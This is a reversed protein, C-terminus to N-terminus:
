RRRGKGIERSLRMGEIREAETKAAHHEHCLSQLEDLTYAHTRGAEAARAVNEIHDVESAPRGCGPVVCRHNDRALAKKRMYGWAWGNGRLHAAPTKKWPRGAWPDHPLCYGNKAEIIEPCGPTLCFRAV